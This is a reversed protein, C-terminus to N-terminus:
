KSDFRILLSVDAKRPVAIPPGPLCPFPARCILDEANENQDLLFLFLFLFSISLLVLKSSQSEFHQVCKFNQRLTNLNNEKQTFHENFLQQDQNLQDDDNDDNDDDDDDDDEDDSKEKIEEKIQQATHTSSRRFKRTKDLYEKIQLKIQKEQCDRIFPHKLLQECNSRILYDKILCSEVFNHCKKSRIL